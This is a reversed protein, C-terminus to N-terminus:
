IIGVDSLIRCAFEARKTKGLNKGNVDKREGNM